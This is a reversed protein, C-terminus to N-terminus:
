DERKAEAIRKIREAPPANEPLIEMIRDHFL